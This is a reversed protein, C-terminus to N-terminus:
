ACSQWPVSATGSRVPACHASSSGSTGGAFVPVEATGDIRGSCCNDGGGPCSSRPCLISCNAYQGERIAGLGGAALVVARQWVPRQSFSRSDSAAKEEGHLRVFGGLPLLNISYVTEGIKKGFLRPPYGIGFEEVKIGFKKAAFFHGLEHLIILAILSFFAILVVLIM